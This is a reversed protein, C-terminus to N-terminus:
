QQDSLAQVLESRIQELRASDEARKQQAMRSLQPSLKLHLEVHQRVKLDVMEEILGILNEATM